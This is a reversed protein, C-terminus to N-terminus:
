KSPIGKEMRKSKLPPRYNTTLHTEQLCYFSPDHKRIWDRLICRKILFNSGNINVIIISLHSDIGTSKNIKHLKKSKM